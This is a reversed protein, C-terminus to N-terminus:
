QISEPDIGAARCAELAARESEALDNKRQRESWEADELFFLACKVALASEFTSTLEREALVALIRFVRALRQAPTKPAEAM